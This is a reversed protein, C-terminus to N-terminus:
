KRTFRNNAEICKWQFAAPSLSLPPPLLLFQFNHFIALNQARFLIRNSIKLLKRPKCLFLLSLPHLFANRDCCICVLYFFFNSATFLSRENSPFATCHILFFFCNWHFCISIIFIGPRNKRTIKYSGYPFFVKM